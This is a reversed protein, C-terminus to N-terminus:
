EGDVTGNKRFDANAYLRGGKKLVAMIVSFRGTVNTVNHGREELGQVYTENLTPEVMLNNPILQHHVRPLDIAEKINYGMFLARLTVLAVGSTIKAGGTGGLALIPDQYEDVIVTPAMSSMPRKWPEIYNAKSPPIKYINPTGPKSFDDMENNLVIGSSTRVMSGFYFNITSSVAIVVGDDGWVTAHATGHDPQQTENLYGYYAPDDFTRNDNIKEKAARAFDPSTLNRVVESSKKTDGLLSRQAYAFKCSEAFRHMTLISDDFCFLSLNRYQDMIGLLYALVAGSGPPPASFMTYDGVFTTNVAEKWEATYNKLDDTTIIGGSANIEKVLSEAFPGEYFYDASENNAVAELTAALDKQICWEGEKLMRQESENWFVKKFNPPLPIKYKTLTRNGEELAAALHSGVAFGCRALTVADTFLDKWCISGNLREHLEQYGRLEGPVAIALGGWVSDSPKRGNFMTKNAKSPARERAIVVQATSTNRSYITAIFGGGLGMSHPIVVGMCLLTAITADVTKGGKKFITRAVSSCQRADTSVAWKSYNGDALIEIKDRRNEDSSCTVNLPKDTCKKGNQETMLAVHHAMWM